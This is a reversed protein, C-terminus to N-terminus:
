SFLLSCQGGREEGKPKKINRQVHEQWYTRHYNGAKEVILVINSDWNRERDREIARKIKASNQRPCSNSPRTRKRRKQRDKDRTRVKVYPQYPWQRYYATSPMNLKNRCLNWYLLLWNNEEEECLDVLECRCNM